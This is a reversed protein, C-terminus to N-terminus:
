HGVKICRFARDGCSDFSILSADKTKCMTGKPCKDMKQVPSESGNECFRYCVDGEKLPSTGAKYSMCHPNDQQSYCYMRTCANLKGDHVMCRNCGDFWSVCDKPISPKENLPPPLPDTVHVIPPPISPSPLQISPCSTMWPRVCSQTDECWQYGGDTVCGHEDKMSGILAMQGTALQFLSFIGFLIQKMMKTKSSVM